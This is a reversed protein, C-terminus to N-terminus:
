LSRGETAVLVGEIIREQVEPRLYPHMPLSLVRQALAEAVPLHPQARLCSQFAPQQHLPTPYHVATPVGRAALTSVVRSRDPVRVTYQAWTSTCEPRLRPVQVHRSLGEQYRRAIVDRQVLEEEFIQLKQLLVAAQITDLRANLGVRVHDYKSAGQGHVRLSRLAAALTDDRTFVAGGDGYGGLPKAPFFSTATLAGLTGVRRTKYRAGFSQAADALIWLNHAQAVTELADYDAPQGFLDVAIVATPTLGAGKAVGVADEVSQPNINFTDEEVDAFVVNAGLLAPAEATAAFTLAPVIVAQGTGVGQALLALLLADTGSGCSIVHPAGSMQGLRGELENVEPGMIFQGHELVADIARRLGEGLRQRQAQLDVFAIPESM